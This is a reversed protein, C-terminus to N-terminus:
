NLLAQMRHLSTAAETFGPQEDLAKGYHRAAELYKRRKEYIVAWTSILFRTRSTVRRMSRANLGAVSSYADGKAM